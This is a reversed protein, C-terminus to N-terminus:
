RLLYATPLAVFFPLAYVAVAFLVYVMLGLGLISLFASVFVPPRREHAAGGGGGRRQRLMAYSRHERFIGASRM